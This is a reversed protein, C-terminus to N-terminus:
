DMPPPLDGIAERFHKRCLSVYRDDGGVEVQPGETLARGDPGIRIVMTAKRGCHCITRVERMEDALALLAASGPFLEGRFDVRLGYCMIPVGLDDVARALQWVQDRSLWHAEDVFVCACAGADLRRAVKAFLDEDPGYTDAEARVGIRSGIVGTGARDDFAATLLYTAMGREVYNHSAQLLLTSKGANMTSYHFYLKAM